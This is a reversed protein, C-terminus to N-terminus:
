MENVASLRSFMASFTSPKVSPSISGLDDNARIGFFILFVFLLVRSVALRQFSFFFLLFESAIGNGQNTVNPRWREAVSEIRALM